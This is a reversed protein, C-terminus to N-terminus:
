EIDAFHRIANYTLKVIKAMNEYSLKEPIDTPQHYDAHLGTTLLYAPIGKKDFHHHDSLAFLSIDSLSEADVVLTTDSNISKIKKYFDDLDNNGWVYLNNGKKEQLGMRGAMDFNLVLLMSDVKFVPNHSYYHSGLLGIEEATFASFIINRNPRYGKQYDNALLRAVELLIAIGSANDDAGPYWSDEKPELHDYHACIMVNQETKRKSPIIGVVNSTSISDVQQNYNFQIRLKNHTKKFEEEEKIMRLIKKPNEGLINEAL